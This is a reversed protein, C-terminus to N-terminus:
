RPSLPNLPRFMHSLRGDALNGLHCSSCNKSQDFTELTTNSLRSAGVGGRWTAGVMLYNKRVDDNPVMGMIASNISIIQTNMGVVETDTPPTGWANMRCIHGPEIRKGPHAEINPANQAHMLEENVPAVCSQSSFAWARGPAPSVTIVQNAVNNYSYPAMPANDVHEFTAWVQNPNGSVSGVVHLGVLALQTQETGNPTWRQDNSIDYTPITATMTIYKRPDLGTTRIWASKLELVLTNPNRLNTGHSAAVRAVEDLESQEVPFRLPRPPHATIVGNKVGTLFYAYADNVHSAYFVLSKNQAMLVGHKGAQGGAEVSKAKRLFLDVKGPTNRTMTRRGESDPASIAFFDPSQFAVGGAKEPSTLWYFMREAWKFFNCEPGDARFNLSDAPSVAGNAQITGGEFWGSFEAQAVSCTAMADNPVVAVQASAPKAFFALASAALALCYLYRRPTV